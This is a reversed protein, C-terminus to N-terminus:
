RGGRGGCGVVGGGGGCGNGGCVEIFKLNEAVSVAACDVFDAVLVGGCDIGQFYNVAVAVGGEAALDEAFDGDEAAGVGGVDDLAVADEIVGAAVDGYAHLVHVHACEFCQQSVADDEGFVEEGLDTVLDQASEFIEAGM